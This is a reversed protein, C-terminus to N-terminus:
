ASPANPRGRVIRVELMEGTVAKTTWHDEVPIHTCYRFFPPVWPQAQKLCLKEGEVRWHGSSHDGAPGRAEYSGGPNLWLEATRNDPYTSVITNGFAREVTPPPASAGCLMVLMGPLAAIAANRLM